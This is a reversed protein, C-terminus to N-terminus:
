RFWHQFITLQVRPLLRWNFRLWFKYIKTWSLVNSFRMLFDVAMKSTWYTWYTLLKCCVNQETRAIDHESLVTNKHSSIEFFFYAPYVFFSLTCKGAVSLTKLRFENGYLLVFCIGVDFKRSEDPWKDFDKSKKGPRIERVERLDM